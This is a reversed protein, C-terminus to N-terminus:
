VACLSSVYSFRFGIPTQYNLTSHIRKRNYFLEIYDFLDDNVESLDRYTRRYIREKKLQAFFSEVCSNDYPCGGRSMSGHMKYSTLANQFGAGAYQTGCDSHFITGDTDPYRGVAEGLARKVLETDIRQSTAYGIVERNYLDMVVALYVWGIRTKIYTIDGAWAVNPGEPRFQQKVLDQKYPNTEQHHRFPRYKRQTVSYLGHERMIRRVKWESIAIGENRLERTIKRCGYADDSAHFVMEVDRVLEQERLRRGRRKEEQIRWQYYQWERILLVRCMRRV